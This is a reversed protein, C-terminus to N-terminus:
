ALQTLLLFAVSLLQENLLERLNKLAKGMHKEVSKVSLNLHQAIEKYTLDEFRSLTFVVQTKDPLAAIGKHIKSSLESSLM